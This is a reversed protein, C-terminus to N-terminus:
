NPRASLPLPPDEDLMEGCCGHTALWLGQGQLKRGGGRARRETKTERETHTEGEGRGGEGGRQRWRRAGGGECVGFGKFM